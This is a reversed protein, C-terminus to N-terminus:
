YGDHGNKKKQVLRVKAGEVRDDPFEVFAILDSMEGDEKAPIIQKYSKNRFEVDEVYFLNVSNEYALEGLQEATAVDFKVPEQLTENAAVTLNGGDTANLCDTQSANGPESCNYAASTGVLVAVAIAAAAGGVAM